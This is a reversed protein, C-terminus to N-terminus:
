RSGRSGRADIKVENGVCKFWAHSGPKTKKKCHKAAARVWSRGKALGAQQAKRGSATKAKNWGAKAEGCVTAKRTFSVAKGRVKFHVRKPACGGKKRKAM